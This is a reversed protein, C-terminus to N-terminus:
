FLLLFLLFTPSIEISELYFHNNNTENKKKTPVDYVRWEFMSIYVLAFYSLPFLFFWIFHVNKIRLLIVFLCFTFLLILPRCFIKMKQEKKYKYQMKRSSTIQQIFGFILTLIWPNVLISWIFFSNKDNKKKAFM